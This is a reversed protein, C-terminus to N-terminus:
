GLGGQREARGAKGRLGGGAVRERSGDTGVGAPLLAVACPVAAAGATAAAALRPAAPDTAARSVDCRAWSAAAAAATSPTTPSASSAAPPPLLLLSHHLATPIGAPAAGLLSPSPSPSALLGVPTALLGAGGGGPSGQQQPHQWPSDRGHQSSTSAPHPEDGDHWSLGNEGSTQAAALRPPRRRAAQQHRRQLVWSHPQMADPPLVGRRYFHEEEAISLHHRVCHAAPWPCTGAMHDLCVSTARDRSRRKPHDKSCSSGHKCCGYRLSDVCLRLRRGRGEGGSLSGSGSGGAAASAAPAPAPTFDPKQEDISHPSAAAAAAPSPPVTSRPTAEHHRPLSASRPHSRSHSHSHTHPLPHQQPEQVNHNGSRTAESPGKEKGAEREEKEKERDREKEGARGNGRESGERSRGRVREKDRDRDGPGDRRDRAADAAEHRSRMASGGDDRRGVAGGSEVAQLGRERERVKGQERERGERDARRNRMREKDREWERERDRDRGREERDVKRDGWNTEKQRERAEGWGAASEARGDRRREASGQKEDRGDVVGVATSGRVKEGQRKSDWDLSREGKLREREREQERERERERGRDRERGRAKGKESEWGRERENERERERERGKEIRRGNETVCEKPKKERLVEREGGKNKQGRELDKERVVDRGEQEKENEKEREKGKETEHQEDAAGRSGATKCAGDDAARVAEVGRVHAKGYGVEAARVRREEIAREGEKSWRGEKEREWERGKGGKEREREERKWSGHRERERHWRREKGHAWNDDRDRTGETERERGESAREVYKGGGRSREGESGKVQQRGDEVREEQARGEGGGRCGTHRGGNSSAMQRVGNAQGHRDAQGRAAVDVYGNRSASASVGKERWGHKGVEGEKSERGAGQGSGRRDEDGRGGRGEHLVHAQGVSRREEEERVAGRGDRGESGGRRAGGVEAVVGCGERRGHPGAGTLPAAALALVVPIAGNVWEARVEHDAAGGGAEKGGGGRSRRPRNRRGGAGSKKSQRGQVEVGAGQRQRRTRGARGRGRGRSGWSPDDESSSAGSEDSRSEGSAEGDSASSSGSSSSSSCTSSSDSSPTDSGSSSSSSGCPAHHTHPAHGNGQVSRTEGAMRRGSSDDRGVAAVAAMAAGATGRESGQGGTVGEGGGGLCPQGEKADEKERLRAGACADEASARGRGRQQAGCSGHQRMGRGQPPQYKLACKDYGRGKGAVRVDSDRVGVLGGERERRRGRSGEGESGSSGESSSISSSGSSDSHSVSSTTSSSGGDSGGNCTSQGRAGRGDGGMGRSRGGGQMGGEEARCGRVKDQVGVDPSSGAELADACPERGHAMGVAAAGELPLPAADAAAVGPVTALAAGHSAAAAAPPCVAASAARQVAPTHTAPSHVSPSPPASATPACAPTSALPASSSVPMPPSTGVPAAINVGAVAAAVTAEVTLTPVPLVATGALELPPAAIAPPPPSPLAPPVAPSTLPSTHPTGHLQSMPPAAAAADHLSPSHTHGNATPVPPLPLATHADDAAGEGDQHLHGEGCRANWATLLHQLYAYDPKDGYELVQLHEAFASLEHPFPVSKTMQDPHYFFHLKMEKVREKETVHRWPLEGELFEVLVYFLSWLDDRRGLDMLLHSHASAYATSGRFQAVQRAPQLDGSSSRFRKCIGFDIVFCQQQREGVGMAFNSPKVDRHLFGEDHMARLARLMQLALRTLTAVPFRGHPLKRRVDSLSPGLLEM